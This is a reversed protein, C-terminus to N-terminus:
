DKLRYKQKRRWKVKKRIDSLAQNYGFAELSKELWGSSRNNTIEAKKEKPLIKEVYEKTHKDILTLLEKTDNKADNEITLTDVIEYRDKLFKVLEKELEQKTM